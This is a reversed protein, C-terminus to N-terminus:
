QGSNKISISSIFQVQISPGYCHDNHCYKEVGYCWKSEFFASPNQYIKRSGKDHEDKHWFEFFNFMFLFIVDIIM